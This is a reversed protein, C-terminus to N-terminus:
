TKLNKEDVYKWIYGGATKSYGSLVRQINSTKAESLRGAESISNYEKIFENDNTYQAVKRGKAKAMAERHKEININKSDTNEEYYKLVSERIKEKTEESIKGDKHAKGGIRGEQIAKKWKESNKVASSLDVKDMAERHKERYTEYHNPNERYFAKCAESIKKKSEDSFKIGLRSGGYQGGPLINYGNPVQCNYKKIYETEYKYRDEDFCIILVEFMFSDIGYKNIADRLAPCGEGKNIKQIHQKWRTEPNPRVTEGIYCKGSVINTIKYIFGM